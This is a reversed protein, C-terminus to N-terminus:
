GSRLQWLLETCGFHGGACTQPLPPFQNRDKKKHLLRGVSKPQAMARGRPVAAGQVRGCLPSETVSPRPVPGSCFPSRRGMGAAAAGLPVLRWLSPSFPNLGSLPQIKVAAAGADGPRPPARPQWWRRVKHIRNAKEACSELERRLKESERQLRENERLVADARALRSSASVAQASVLAEVGAPGLTGPCLPLFAAPVPGPLVRCSGLLANDVKPLTPSSGAVGADRRAGAPTVGSSSPPEPFRRHQKKSSPLAREGVVFRMKHPIGQDSGELVQGTPRPPSGVGWAGRKRPISCAAQCLICRPFAAWKGLNRPLALAGPVPGRQWVVSIDKRYGSPGPWGPQGRHWQQLM